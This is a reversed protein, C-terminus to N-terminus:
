NVSDCARSREACSVDSEHRPTVCWGEQGEVIITRSACELVQARRWSSRKESMRVSGVVGVGTEEVTCVSM